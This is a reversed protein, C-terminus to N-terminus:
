SEYEAIMRDLEKDFTDMAILSSDGADIKELEQHLEKQISQFSKSGELLELEEKDFKKLFWLIHNYTEKNKIKLHLTEM